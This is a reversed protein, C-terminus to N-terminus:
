RRFPATFVYCGSDIHYVYRDATVQLLRAGAAARVDGATGTEDYPTYVTATCNAPVDVTLTFCDDALRWSSRVV